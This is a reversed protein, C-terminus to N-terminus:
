LSTWVKVEDVLVEGNSGMIGCRGTGTIATGTETGSLILDGDLYGEVSTGDVTFKLTHYVSHDFGPPLTETDLAPNGLGDMTKYIYITGADQNIAMTYYDYTDIPVFRGASKSAMFRAMVGYSPKWSANASRVRAEVACATSDTGTHIYQYTGYDNHLAKVTGDVQIDISAGSTHVLEWPPNTPTSGADYAEFTEVVDPAPPGSPGCGAVALIITPILLLYVSNKKLGEVGKRTNRLYIFEVNAPLDRDSSPRPM